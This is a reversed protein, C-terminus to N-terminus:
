FCLDYVCLLAPTDAERPPLATVSKPKEFSGDSLTLRSSIQQLVDFYKESEHAKPKGIGYLIFFAADSCIM